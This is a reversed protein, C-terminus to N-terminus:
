HAKAPYGAVGAGYDYVLSGGYYSAVLLVVVGAIGLLRAATPQERIWGLITILRLGLLGAFIWFTAFGLMEHIEIAQEPVGGHEAADEAMSGSVVSVLAGAFGLVLTYLSAVRCDEPRWKAGLLDFFVAASLLAIPFHVLMPHIPHM